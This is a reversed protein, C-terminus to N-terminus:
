PQICSLVETRVKETLFRRAGEEDGALLKEKASEFARDVEKKLRIVRTEAFIHIYTYIYIYVYIYIYIYICM